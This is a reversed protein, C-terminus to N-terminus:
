EVKIFNKVLTKKETFLRIFYMGPPLTSVDIIKVASNKYILEGMLNLIEIRYVNKADYVIQLKNNVPNPYILFDNDNDNEETGVNYPICSPFNENMYWQKVRQLDILNRAISTNLGNPSLSDWTFVYAFDLTDEGGSPLTIPGTGIVFRQDEPFSPAQSSGSYPTQPYMFNTPLGISDVLHSGDGWVSKMLNYYHQAGSPNGQPANNINNYRMFHNLTTREGPEDIIGDLDNDTGDGPNAKLGKLIIINQMPPNMGYGSATEDNNDGNYVFGAALVTDCGVYDDVPYGLDVDSWLGVYLSDYDMSSRNIIRYSYFTSWNLVQNSDAIGPCGYAYASVHVEVGMKPGGSETHVNLSDNFIFYLMQDGKIVPYDGNMPNYISDNDFDFFPAMKETVYGNGKAPWTLIVQPIIYTGNGVNGNLFNYKFEEITYKNVKWIKNFEQCSNLDFPITMGSIPGPWYDSGTQRYTQAAVRLEGQQDIGGIWFASAFVSHHGSNKPVEYKPNLLDWHTNGEIMMGAEVDNIDIDRYSNITQWEFYPVYSNFDFSYFLTAGPDRKAIFWLKNNSDFEIDHGFLQSGSNHPALYKIDVDNTLPTFYGFSGHSDCFGAEGAPNKAFLIKNNFYFELDYPYVDEMYNIVSGGQPILFINQNTAFWFTNDSDVVMDHIDNTSIISNSTTYSTWNNNIFSSLGLPTSIWVENNNGVSIKKITDSLIGSNSTNYVTWATGDFKVLGMTTGMWIDNGRVQIDKIVDSPLGSNTTNYNMWTIGDYKSVGLKTGIWVDGAPSFDLCITSDSPLGSNSVNHMIWNVGDYKGLGISAFAIWVNDNADVRLSNRMMTETTSYGGPMNHNTVPVQGYLTSTIYPLFILLLLKRM